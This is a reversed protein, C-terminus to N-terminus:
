CTGKVLALIVGYYYTSDLIQVLRQSISFDIWLLLNFRISDLIQVLQIINLRRLTQNRCLHNLKLFDLKTPIWQAKPENSGQDCAWPGQAGLGANCCMLCLYASVLVIPNSHLILPADKVTTHSAYLLRTQRQSGTMQLYVHPLWIQYFLKRSVFNKENVPSTARIKFIYQHIQFAPFSDVSKKNVKSLALCLANAM